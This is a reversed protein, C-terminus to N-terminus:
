YLYKVLLYCIMWLMLNLQGNPVLLRVKCTSIFIGPPIFNIWGNSHVVCNVQYTTDFETSASNYMLLDPTWLKSPPIRIDSIGGYESQFPVFLTILIWKKHKNYSHTYRAGVSKRGSRWMKTWKQPRGVAKM